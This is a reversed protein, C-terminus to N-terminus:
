TPAAWTDANPHMGNIQRRFLPWQRQILGRTPDARLINGLSMVETVPHRAREWDDKASLGASVGAPAQLYLTHDFVAEIPVDGHHVHVTPFFLRDPSRTIFRLAMPHVEAEGKRLQFVAFGYDAYAPVRGLVADPLRFRADLRAFDAIAPVFSADYAGVRHVALTAPGAAVAPGAPARGPPPRFCRSLEHFLQPAETLNVFAVADDDHGPAVPLPLIMAVDEVAALRMQYALLQQEGELRAFISTGSVHTIPGSFCCM